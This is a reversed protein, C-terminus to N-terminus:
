SIHILSLRVNEVRYATMGSTHGPTHLAEIETEGIAITEGNEITAYATDDDVGREAASAPLFAEASTGAAVRRVGSIHDAHIHTDLAATIEAGLTRADQHYTDVFARLPDVVAAEDGSVVLYSLCGSSPRQYQVVTADVDVALEYSEYLDAWGNMGRVLHRVEYGREALLGAVYESSDGKACLVTVDRDDPIEEFVGDNVDGLLFEFYPVNRVTVNPEDIHWEEFAESSRTDLLFVDESDDIREKLENPEISEVDVAPDPFAEDSM